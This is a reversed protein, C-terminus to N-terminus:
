GDVAGRRLSRRPRRQRATRCNRRAADPDCALDDRDLRLCEDIAAASADRCPARHNGAGHTRWRLRRTAMRVSGHASVAAGDPVSQVHSARAAHADHARAGGARSFGGGQLNAHSDPHRRRAAHRRDARCARHRPEDARGRGVSRARHPGHLVRLAHGLPLHRSADADSGEAQRDNGFYLSHRGHRGRRRGSSTGGHPPSGGVRDLGGRPEDPSLAIRHRLQPTDSTPPLRAALDAEHVLVKAGCHALMYALGPTQERISIPVAIAGLRLAAFVVAPLPIGNGLLLAVRDGRGVGLDALANAWGIVLQELLLYSYREEGCVLAEGNPNATVAEALLAYSSKPRASFCRLVRGDFHQESRMAPVTGLWEPASRTPIRAADVM